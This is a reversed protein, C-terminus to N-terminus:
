RHETGAAPMLLPSTFFWLFSSASALAIQSATDDSGVHAKRLRLGDLLLANHYQM